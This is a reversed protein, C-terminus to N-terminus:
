PFEPSALDDHFRNLADDKEIRLGGPQIRTEPVADDLNGSNLGDTALNGTPINM